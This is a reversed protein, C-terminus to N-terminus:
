RATEVSDSAIVDKSSRDISLFIPMAERGSDADIGLPVRGPKSRRRGNELREADVMGPLTVGEVEFDNEAVRRVGAAAMGRRRAVRRRVVEIWRWGVKTTVDREFKRLLRAELGARREVMVWGEMTKNRVYWSLVLFVLEVLMVRGARVRRKGRLRSSGPSAEAREKYEWRRRTSHALYEM